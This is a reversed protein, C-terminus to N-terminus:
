GRRKSATERRARRAPPSTPLPPGPHPGLTAVVKAPDRREPVDTLDYLAWGSGFRVHELAEPPGAVYGDPTIAFGSGPTHYLRILPRPPQAELDWIENFGSELS